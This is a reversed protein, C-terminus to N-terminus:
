REKILPQPSRRVLREGGAPRRGAFGYERMVSLVEEARETIIGSIILDGGPKLCRVFLPAM